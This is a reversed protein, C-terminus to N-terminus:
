VAFIRGSRHQCLYDTSSAVESAAYGEAFLVVPLVDDERDKTEPGRATPVRATRSWGCRIHPTKRM